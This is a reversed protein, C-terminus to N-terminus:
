QWIDRTSKVQRALDHLNKWVARRQIGSEKHLEEVVSALLSVPADDLLAHLHPAQDLPVTGEVLVQHLQTPALMTRYSVSATRAARTLASMGTGPKIPQKAHPPQVYVGLGLVSALKEARNLSLDKVTGMEVQNITQRSLGSLKALATQTLGIECRRTRVAQSLESLTTMGGVNARKRQM